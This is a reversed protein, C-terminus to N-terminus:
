EVEEQKKAAALVFKKSIKAQNGSVDVCHLNFTYEGTALPLRLTEGKPTMLAPIAITDSKNGANQLEDAYFGKVKTINWLALTDVRPFNAEIVIKYSSLQVNDSIQATMIITDGVYVTDNRFRLDSLVPSEKDSISDGACSTFLVGIFGLVFLKKLYTKM